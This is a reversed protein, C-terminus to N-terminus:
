YGEWGSIPILANFALITGSTNIFASSNEKVLAQTTVSRAIFLKNNTSGDYFVGSYVAGEGTVLGSINGVAFDYLSAGHGFQAMTGVVTANVVTSLKTTDINLPLAIAATTASTASCTITGQIQLSDGCRKSWINTGGAAATVGDVSFTLTNNWASQYGHDIIQWNANDSEVIFWEYQTSLNRTIAGDQTQSSTTAIVIPAVTNNDTKKVTYQKGTVGVATPLVVTYSSSSVLVLSDTTLISYAATKSTVSPNTLSWSLNGSGDNQLFTSANGQTGPMRITYAAGGTSSTHTVSGITFQPVPTLQSFSVSGSTQSLPLNNVVQNTLSISGSTQTLPLNGTVQTTLSVSSVVVTGSASVSLQALPSLGVTSVQTALSVSSVVVAGTGSLALQASPSLGSSTVQSTLSISGQTQSNLSLTQWSAIATGSSVILSQNALGLALRVAVGSGSGTILDGSSTMPNVFPVSTGQRIGSLLLSGTTSGVNLVYGVFVSFNPQVPDTIQFFGASSTSLWVRQGGSYASTDIGHVKGSQTVYGVTGNGIDHTAVGLLASTSSTNAQALAITPMDGNAVSGASYVARGNLITAGSSNQVQVWNEQGIQLSISSINNQFTICQSSGDFVMQGQSLSASGNALLGLPSNFTKVGSFTQSTSNVLGPFTATASQAYVTNSGITLGKANAAASDLPGVALPVSSGGVPLWTLSALNYIYLTDTDLTIATAGDTSSSPLSAFNAYTPIGSTNVSPYRTYAM